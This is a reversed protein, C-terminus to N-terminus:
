DILNHNILLYKLNKNINSLLQFFLFSHYLNNFLPFDFNNIQILIQIGQLNNYFIYEEQWLM